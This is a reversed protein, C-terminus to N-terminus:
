PPPNVLYNPNSDPRRRWEHYTAAITPPPAPLPAGLEPHEPVRSPPVAPVSPALAVEVIVLEGAAVALSPRTFPEYGDASIKLEYEGATLGLARFVGGGNATTAHVAGTSLNRLSVLAGAIVRRNADDGARRVLGEVAGMDTRTQRPIRQPGPKEQEIGQLKSSDPSGNPAAGTGDQAAAPIVAVLMAALCLVGARRLIAIERRPEPPAGSSTRGNQPRVMAM